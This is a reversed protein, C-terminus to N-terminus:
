DKTKDRVVAADVWEGTLARTLQELTMKVCIVRGDDPILQVRISDGDEGQVRSITLKATDSM